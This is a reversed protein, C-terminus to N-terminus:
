NFQTLIFSLIEMRAQNSVLGILRKRCPQGSAHYALYFMGLSDYQHLCQSAPDAACGASKLAQCKQM